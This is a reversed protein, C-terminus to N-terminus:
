VNLVKDLFTQVIRPDFQAGAYKLLEEKAMSESLAKRYPRDHTMAEYADLVSVVRSLLPIAEGELNRPYGKGDWREHHCLIYEAVYALESSAKAINYGTEPHRKIEEWESETLKDAKCLINPSISIKGIDHVEALIELENRAVLSLGLAKGTKKCLEKLNALHEKEHYDNSCVVNKIFDVIKSKHSNSKLLKVKYMYDEARKMVEIMNEEAKEKTDCGLSISVKREILGSQESEMEIRSCIKEAEGRNTYPLLIIFEDGGWRSIIDQKRCVKKMIQAAAQILHDGEIHGFVDNVLKLGNIDGIILSLPLEQEKDLRKLEQEFFRRNYLGTLGDRFSLYEIEERQKKDQTIDRITFVAGRIQNNEEHMVEGHLEIFIEKQDQNILQIDENLVLVSSSEMVRSVLNEYAQDKKSNKIHIIDEFNKGIVTEKKNCL